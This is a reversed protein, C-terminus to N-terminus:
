TNYLVNATCDLVRPDWPASSTLIVHPLEEWEKDTHPTMKLYPLGNIIDLPLIFGDNTRICQKGGTKLSRDDVHNKYHELQAASHITRGIGHMAYQRIIVIVSGRQSTAKASADVIKLANLEHNDIGTVDVQRTHELFVHADNGLIGGNAGRDILSGRKNRSVVHTLVSYRPLSLPTPPPGVQVSPM